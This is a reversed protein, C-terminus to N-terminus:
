ERTLADIDVATGFETELYKRLRTLLRKELQRARERSVGYQDGIEQLTKPADTLWRERFITQERGELDEAFKELKERLLGSFEKQEAAHDPRAEDSPLFDLRTRAGDDDASVPADLSAEPAAMRKEMEVVDKESVDLKEALLAATPQFGLQELKEKEKRLNFFLKRQAQTTGIKVLRWNNLIFKLIYARIWFAAYSSLKVGRYPDFKGVAQILGINGEQILDLLNKHARRYEYAIKVVLRLNAEILKRAAKTDGGEFLKVALDHEEEPTLLPYRRAEQMYAQMPDRKVLSGGRERRKTEKEDEDRAPPWEGTPQVSGDENVDIINAAESLIEDDSPEKDSDESEAGEDESDKEESRDEAADGDVDIVDDRKKGRGVRPKRDAM